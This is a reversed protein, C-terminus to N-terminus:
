VVTAGVVVAGPVVGSELGLGTQRCCIPLWPMTGLLLRFTVEAGSTLNVVSYTSLGVWSSSVGTQTERVRAEVDPLASYTVMVGTLLALSGIPSASVFFTESGLLSIVMVKLLGISAFFSRTTTVGDVSLFDSASRTEASAQM